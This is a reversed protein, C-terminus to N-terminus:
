GESRKESPIGNKQATISYAARLLYNLNPQPKLELLFQYAFLSPWILCLSHHIRMLLRGIFGQGFVLPWPAPINNQRVVNFGSQEFLRRLTKSTFLRTHTIDLIGKKGYNFIGFIHLVRSIFFAINGTSVLLRLQPHLGLKAHMRDIFEEPSKLHELVDLMLVIDAQGLDLPLDPADLDYLIFDDLTIGCALPAIDVGTVRAGRREKLARGFYGGACGLDIIRAHEPVAALVLAHP